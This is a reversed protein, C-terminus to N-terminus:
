SFLILYGFVELDPLAYEYPDEGRAPVVSFPPFDSRGGDDERGCQDVHYNVRLM